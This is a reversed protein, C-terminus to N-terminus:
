IGSALVAKAFSYVGAFVCFQVKRGSLLNLLVNTSLFTGSLCWNNVSYARFLIFRTGRTAIYAFCTFAVRFLSRTRRQLSTTPIVWPYLLLVAVITSGITADKTMDMYYKWIICFSCIIEGLRPCDRTVQGGTFVKIKHTASHSHASSGPSRWMTSGFISDPGFPRAIMVWVGLPVTAICFQMDRM